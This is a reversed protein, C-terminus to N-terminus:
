KEDWSGSEKNYVYSAGDSTKFTTGNNTDLSVSGGDEFNLKLSSDTAETSDAFMDLTIGNLYVTDDETAGVVKDNGNGLEYWFTDEGDGGILTDNGGFSGWLSSGNNGATIVNDYDNGVLTTAGTAASGDLAIIEGDFDVNGHSYDNLWIEADGLSSSVKVTANSSSAHYYNAVGDFTLEKRAVQAIVFQNDGYIAFDQGAMDNLQVKGGNDTEIIVNGNLDASSNVVSSDGVNLVDSTYENEGTTAEFGEITDHGDSFYFTTYDKKDDGTYGVLSDNGAGGNLVSLGSGAVLTDNGASGILTSEASGAKVKNIGRFVADLKDVTGSEEALNINLTRNYESFDVGSNEGIYAEPTNEESDPVAIVADKEAVATKIKDEGILLKTYSTEGIDTDSESDAAETYKPADTLLVKSDGEYITVNEGDFSIDATEIDAAVADGDDEFSFNFNDVTTKGNESNMMIMAGEDASDRNESLEVLNKGDGADIVDGAGAFITDNNSGGILTSPDEKTGDMNGVLVLKETESSADIVGGESHTFGVKRKKGDTNYINVMTEGIPLDEGVQVTAEEIYVTGDGFDIDGKEIAEAIDSSNAQLGSKTDADYNLFTVNGELAVVRTNEDNAAFIVEVDDGSTVVTDKGAGTVIAVEAATEEVVAVDKGDGFSILKEGDADEPVVAVNGTEEDNFIVVQDGSELTVSKAGETESFDAIQTRRDDNDLIMAAKGDEATVTLDTETTPDGYDGNVNLKELIEDTSSGPNIPSIEPDFIYAGDDSGVFIDGAKATLETGNVTYTGGQSTQLSAEKDLGVIDKGQIVVTNDDNTLTYTTKGITVTQNEMFVAINETDGGVTAGDSLNGVAIDDIGVVGTIEADTDSIEVAVGNVTNKNSSSTLVGSLDAVNVVAGNQMEFTVSGDGSINYTAGGDFVFEGESDTIVRETNGVSSITAGDSVGSIEVVASDSGVVNISDDGTIKVTNDNIEVSNEFAGSITGDLGDVVMLESTETGFGGIFTVSDDGAVTYTSDGLTFEGESDTVIDFFTSTEGGNYVASGDITAGSSVGLVGEVGFASATITYSEDNTVSVTEAFPGLIDTTSVNLGNEASSVTAGEEIDEVLMFTKGDIVTTGSEYMVFETDGANSVEVGDSLVINGDKITVVADDGSFTVGGLDVAADASFSITDYNTMYVGVGDETTTIEAGNLTYTGATELTMVGSSSASIVSGESILRSGDLGFQLSGEEIVWGLNAGGFTFALTLTADSPSTFKFYDDGFEIATGEGEAKVNTDYAASTRYVAEGNLETGDALVINGNLYTISGTIDDFAFSYDNNSATVAVTLADSTAPTITLGGSTVRIEGSADTNATITLIRGSEFTNTVITGEELEIAGGLMYTVSGTVDLSTTRTEGDTTVSLELGGDDSGPTFKIGGGVLDIKGGAEDTATVNVVSGDVFTLDVSTGSSVTIHNEADLTFSGNTVSLTGLAVSTDSTEITIALGGDDTNPTYTVGNESFSVIGGAADENTTVFTYDGVTLEVSTGAAFELEGTTRNFSVSGSEVSIEGDFIVEDGGTLTVELSGDNEGPTMTFEDGDLVFTSSADGNATLTVEYNDLSLGLTTGDFLTMANTLIDFSVSGNLSVEGEFLEEGASDYIKFTAAKETDSTSLTFVTGDRSIIVAADEPATLEMTYGNVTIEATSGAILGTEHTSPNFSIGGNLNLTSTFFTKGGYGFTVELAGDDEGNHIYITGEDDMDITVSADDTATISLEYDGYTAGITTGEAM